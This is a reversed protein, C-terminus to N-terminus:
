CHAWEQGGGEPKARGCGEAVIDAKSHGLFLLILHGHVFVVSGYALILM